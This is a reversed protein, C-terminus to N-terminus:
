FAPRVGLVFNLWASMQFTYNRCLVPSPWADPHEIPYERCFRCVAPGQVAVTAWQCHACSACKSVHSPSFSMCHSNALRHMRHAPFQPSLCLVGWSIVLVGPGQLSEELLTYLNLSMLVTSGQEQLSSMCFM